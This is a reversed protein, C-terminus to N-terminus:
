QSAARLNCLHTWLAPAISVLAGIISAAALILPWHNSEDIQALLQKDKRKQTEPSLPHSADLGLQQCLEDCRHGNFFRDVGDQGLDGAGFLDCRPTSHIQPDTFMFSAGTDAVGQIDTVMRTKGSVHYTYHSLAGPVPHKWLLVDPFFANNSWKQYCGRLYVEVPYFAGAAEIVSVPTFAVHYGSGVAKNFRQAYAASLWQAYADRFLQPPDLRRAAAALPWPLPPM